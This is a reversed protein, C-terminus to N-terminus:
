LAMEKRVVDDIASREEEFGLTLFEKKATSRRFRQPNAPDHVYVAYNTSYGVRGTIVAGDTVIERFQSNLLASTDIPTYYAARTGILMMASQLARIVKRGKVDNIVDNLHKKAQSIGKVKIGM